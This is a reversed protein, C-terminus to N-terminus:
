ENEEKKLHADFIIDFEPYMARLQNVDARVSAFTVGRSSPSVPTVAEAQGANKLARRGADTLRLGEIVRTGNEVGMEQEFLGHSRIISLVNYLWSRNRETPYVERGANKFAQEISVYDQTGDGFLRALNRVAGERSIKDNKSM